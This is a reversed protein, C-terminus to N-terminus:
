FLDVNNFCDEYLFQVTKQVSITKELRPIFSEISIIHKTTGNNFLQKIKPWGFLLLIKKKSSIGGYVKWKM